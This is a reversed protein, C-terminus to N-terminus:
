RLSEFRTGRSKLGTCNGLKSLYRPPLPLIRVELGMPVPSLHGARSELHGSRRAVKWPTVSTGPKSRRLGEMIDFCALLGGSRPPVIGM